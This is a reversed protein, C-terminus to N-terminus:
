QKQCFSVTLVASLLTNVNIVPSRHSVVCLSHDPYENLRQIAGALSDLGGSFLVIDGDFDQQEGSFISYQKNDIEAPNKDTKVFNFEYRRDGTMFTLVNNLATKVTDNQWFCYDLVPVTFEFTRSWASNNVSSREGRNAMRDACFIYAALQLLDIVRHPLTEVDEVFKDYGVTINASLTGMDSHLLNIDEATCISTECIEGCKVRIIKPLQHSM